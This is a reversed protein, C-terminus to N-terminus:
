FLNPIKYHQNQLIDCPLRVSYEIEKAKMKEKQEALSFAIDKGRLRYAKEIQDKRTIQKFLDSRPLKNKYKSILEDEMKANEKLDGDKLIHSVLGGEQIIQYSILSFRHCEFPNAESCMLAIRYGLDLGRTLRAIGDKFSSSLRVKDFDVKGNSDLLYSSTQRAGFEKQFDMYHIKSERLSLSLRNRNFQPAIRSYPLSRVDIIINCQHYRLLRIFCDIKHRSHGITFITQNKM